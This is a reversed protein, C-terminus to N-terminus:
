QVIVAEALKGMQTNPHVATVECLFGLANFRDGLQIDFDVGGAVTMRSETRESNAAQQRASAGKGQREIRVSQDALTTENRRVSITVAHDGIVELLDAQMKLLDAATLV